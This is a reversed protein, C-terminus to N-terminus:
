KVYSLRKKLTNCSLFLLIFFLLESILLGISVGVLLDYITGFFYIFTYFILAKTIILVSVLKFAKIALLATYLSLGIGSILGSILALQAPLIGEKYSPLFFNIFFPLIMSGIITIMLLILFLKKMVSFSYDIVAESSNTNGLHASMKPYFYQSLTNPLLMMLSNVAIAPSYLGIHITSGLQLIILRIFTPILLYVYNFTFLKSGTLLLHKFLRFNWKSAVKIPRKLHLLFLQSLGLFALRILNGEYMWLPVFIITLIVLITQILYVRTLRDFAENSRYTSLLFNNYFQITSLIGFVLTTYFFILSFNFYFYVIIILSFIFSLITCIKVVFLSTSTIKEALNKKRAGLFFPLDRALGNIIGLQLIYIYSIFIMFSNWLGMLEPEIWYIVLVNSIMLVINLVTASAGFKVSTKNFLNRIKKM